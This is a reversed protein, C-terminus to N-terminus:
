QKTKIYIKKRNLHGRHVLLRSGQFREVRRHPVLKDSKITCLYNFIQIYQCMPIFFGVFVPM